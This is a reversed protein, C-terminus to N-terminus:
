YIHTLQHNFGTHFLLQVNSSTNKYYYNCFFAFKTKVNNMWDMKVLICM